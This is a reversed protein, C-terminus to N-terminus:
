PSNTIKKGQIKCLFLFIASCPGASVASALFGPLLLVIPLCQGMPEALVLCGLLLSIM